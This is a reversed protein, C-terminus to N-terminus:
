VRSDGRTGTRFGTLRARARFSAGLGEVERGFRDRYSIRGARAEALGEVAAATVSLSGLRSEFTREFLAERFRWEDHYLTVRATRADAGSEELDELDDVYSQLDESTFRCKGILSTESM